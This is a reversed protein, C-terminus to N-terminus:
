PTSRGQHAPGQPPVALVVVAANEYAALGPHAAEFAAMRPAVYGDWRKAVFLYRM